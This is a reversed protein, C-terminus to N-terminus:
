RKTTSIVNSIGGIRSRTTTNCELDGATALDAMERRIGRERQVAAIAAAKDKFLGISRAQDYAEYGDFRRLIMGVCIKDAM